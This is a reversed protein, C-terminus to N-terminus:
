YTYNMQPSFAMSNDVFHHTKCSCISTESKKCVPILEIDCRVIFNFIYTYPFLVFVNLICLKTVGM